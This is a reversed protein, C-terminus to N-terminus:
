SKVFDPVSRNPLNWQIRGLLLDGKAKNRPMWEGVTVCSEDPSINTVDFNGMLAVNNPDNVGDGVLPLAVRETDCILCLKEPDVQAM